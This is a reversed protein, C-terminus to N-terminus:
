PLYVRFLTAGCTYTPLSACQAPLLVSRGALADGDLIFLIEMKDKLKKWVTPRHIKWKEICFFPTHILEVCTYSPTKERVVSPVFPNMVDNYHIAKSAKELHLPRNRDFDYVRYTTNSNQQVEFIVNGAGIAHLRGGPIFIVDDKKVFFSHMLPLIEKSLLKQLVFRKSYVKRLGNYIISKESTDLVVWAESKAEGGLIKATSDDPHVQISLNQQADIIKILLPFRKCHHDKGLLAKKETVFLEHLTKGQLFGNEITSMGDPHDSVEWSEAYKGPPENRHFLQLIRNGGWIYDKYVPKFLLPYLM